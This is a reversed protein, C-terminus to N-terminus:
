QYIHYKQKRVQFAACDAEWRQWIADADPCEPRIDSSGCLFHIHPGPAFACPRFEVQGPWLRLITCLLWLGTRVSRYSTRDTIEVRVGQCLKDKYKSSTPCFAAPRFVVGPLNLSNMERSLLDGDLFPAGILRFPQGTGRGESLSTGEFLCMGPYLLATEFDRIAGSPKVWDSGFEPFMQSRKWGACPVVHLKCGLKQEANVMAALEGVTLGYRIPLPYPGIFSRYADQLLCGEVVDGGLLAPRDLIVFDVGAAACDEMVRIMITIYTYFRTGLDQIDYVITDLRSLWDPPVPKAQWDGFLSVVAAGTQPEVPDERVNEGNGFTGFLGHEPTFICALPYKEHFALYGPRLDRTVAAASTVMGLRKGRFLCAFEEIRDIGCQIM